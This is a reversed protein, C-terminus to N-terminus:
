ILSAGTAQEVLRRVQTLSPHDDGPTLPLALLAAASRESFAKMTDPVAEIQPEPVFVLNVDRRLAVKHLAEDFAEVTDAQVPEAGVGAMALVFARSGIAVIRSM